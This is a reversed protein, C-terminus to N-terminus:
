KIDQDQGSKKKAIKKLFPKEVGKLKQWYHDSFNGHLVTEQKQSDTEDRDTKNLSINSYIRKFFSKKTFPTKPFSIKQGDDEIGFSGKEEEVSLEQLSLDLLMPIKYFLIAGIGALSFALVIIAIAILM